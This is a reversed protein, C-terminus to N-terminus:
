RRPRDGDPRSRIGVDARLFDVYRVGPVNIAGGFVYRFLLVFMVPQITSFVLLSPIRVYQLLNRRTVVWADSLVWTLRTSVNRAPATKVAATSM